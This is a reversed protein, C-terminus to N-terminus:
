NENLNKIERQGSPIHLDEGHAEIDANLLEIVLRNVSMGRTRKAYESLLERYGHPVRIKVDDLKEHYDRNTALKKESTKREM